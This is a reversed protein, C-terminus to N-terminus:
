SPCLVVLRHTAWTHDALEIVRAGLTGALEEWWAPTAFSLGYRAGWHHPYDLYSYGAEEIDRRIREATSPTVVSPLDREFNGLLEPTHYSAVVVGGPRCRRVIADITRSTQIGDLHTVVSGLWAVDVEPLDMEAIDGHCDIATAGFTAAVWAAASQDVDCVVLEAAPFRTRIHRAVRGHGCGFDLVTRVLPAAGLPSAADHAAALHEVADIGTARYHDVLDARVAELMLDNRHVPGLGDVHRAPLRAGMAEWTHRAAWYLRPRGHLWRAATHVNM